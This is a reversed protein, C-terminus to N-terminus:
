TGNNLSKEQERAINLANEAMAKLAEGEIIVPQNDVAIVAYQGLRWKRDLANAVARQLAHLVELSERSPPNHTVNM